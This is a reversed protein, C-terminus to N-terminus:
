RTCLQFLRVDVLDHKDAARRADRFHLLQQFLKEVALLGALPDVWVFRHRVTRRHLAADQRALAALVHAADDQQVDRRKRQADLRNAAHHRLEDRAVGGDGGLARLDEGGVLVLLGRDGDLDKLALAGHGLVVVRQALEVELPDGWGRTAHGLDFHGELHICVADQADARLVLATPLPLLDGDGVVLPAEALFLDLAHHRLSLLVRLLIPHRLLADVRAVRQLRVAVARPAAHLVLVHLQALTVPFRCSFRHALRQLPHLVVRLCLRLLIALLEALQLVYATGDQRLPLRPLIVVAVIQSVEVLQLCPPAPFRAQCSVFLGALTETQPPVVPPM